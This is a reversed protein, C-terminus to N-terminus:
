VEAFIKEFFHKMEVTAAEPKVWLGSHGANPIKIITSDAVHENVYNASEIFWQRHTNAGHLILVPATIRKLVSPDTPGPGKSEAVRELLGLLVPIYKRCGKLWASGSLATLEEKNAYGTMWDYVAEDPRGETALKSMREIANRVQESDEESMVEFVIPEYLAVAAIAQSQSAAGLADICGGSPAALGVPEGISEAFAVVDEVHREPSLDDSKDSLGRNRTSMTYCTFKDKLYPLALGWDSDGDGLGAHILVLPPGHGQVRGAIKTGDKSIARHILNDGKINEM